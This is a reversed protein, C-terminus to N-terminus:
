CSHSIAYFPILICHISFNASFVSLMSPELRFHILILWSFIPILLAFCVAIRVLCYQFSFFLPNKLVNLFRSFVTFTSITRDLNHSGFCFHLKSIWTHCNIRHLGRRFCLSFFHKLQINFFLQSVLWLCNRLSFLFTVHSSPLSIQWTFWFRGQWTRIPQPKEKGFCMWKEKNLHGNVRYQMHDWFLVKMVVTNMLVISPCQIM